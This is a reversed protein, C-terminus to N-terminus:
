RLERREGVHDVNRDHEVALEYGALPARAIEVPYQRADRCPVPACWQRADREVHESQV